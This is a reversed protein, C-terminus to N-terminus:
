GTLSFAKGTGLDGRVALASIRTEPVKLDDALQVLEGGKIHCLTQWDSQFGKWDM